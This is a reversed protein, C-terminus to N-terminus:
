PTALSRLVERSKLTQPWHYQLHSQLAREIERAPGLDLRIRVASELRCDRLHRLAARAPPSLSLVASAESDRCGRCVAGGGAASFWGPDGHGCLACQELEPAYGLLDALRIEVWRCLPAPAGGGDLRDLAQSLLEYVEAAPERFPLIGGVLDLLYSGYLLRDLDAHLSPRMRLVSAQTLHDLSRGEAFLANLENFPEVKGVLPSRPRRSGRVAADFRGLEPSLLALIEDAEGLPRRRLVLVTSKYM